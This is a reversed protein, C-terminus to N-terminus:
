TFEPVESMIPLCVQEGPNPTQPTGYLGVEAGYMAESWPSVM